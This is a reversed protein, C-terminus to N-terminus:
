ACGVCEGGVNGSYSNGNQEVINERDNYIGGGETAKNGSFDSDTVILTGGNYIAGGIEGASNERYESDSIRITGSAFIAGGRIRASNGSFVSDTASVLGGAWNFTAIAGGSDSASNGSLTSDTMILTSGSTHIAGGRAASNDKFESDSVTLHGWIDVAGGVGASNGSFLSGSVTIAGMFSEIAGGSGHAASNKSFQSDTIEATGHNVVAGGGMVAANNLFRTEIVIIVGGLASAIAGGNGNYVIPSAGFESDDTEHTDLLTQAIDMNITTTNGSFDSNTVTLAGEGWNFIAGGSYASNGSFASSDITLIGISAIAGGFESENGSFDSESISLAGLNCIAGGAAWEGEEWEICTRAEAQAAGDRLTLSDITLDGEQGVFFIRFFDEGSIVFGGGMISIPSRIEPLEALLLVDSTLVITDAGSGAACGGIARDQNASDIAEALACAGEVTIDAANALSVGLGAWLLLLLAFAYTRRVGFVASFEPEFKAM